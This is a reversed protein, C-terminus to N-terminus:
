IITLYISLVNVRLFGPKVLKSVNFSAKLNTCGHSEIAWPGNKLEVKVGEWYIM